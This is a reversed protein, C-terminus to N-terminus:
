DYWASQRVAPDITAGPLEYRLGPQDDMFQTGTGFVFRGYRGYETFVGCVGEPQGGMPVRVIEDTDWDVITLMVTGAEFDIALGLTVKEGREEIVAPENWADLNGYAILLLGEPSQIMLAWGSTPCEVGGFEIREQAQASVASALLFASFALAASWVIGRLIWNKM